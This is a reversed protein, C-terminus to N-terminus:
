LSGDGSEHPRLLSAILFLSRPAASPAAARGGPPSLPYAASAGAARRIPELPRRGRGCRRRWGGWSAPSRPGSTASWSGARSVKQYRHLWLFPGRWAGERDQTRVLYAVVTWQGDSITERGLEEFLAEGDGQELVLDDLDHIIMINLTASTFGHPCDNLSDPAGLHPAAVL